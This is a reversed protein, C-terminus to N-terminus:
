AMDRAMALLNGALPRVLDRAMALLNGALHNSITFALRDFESGNGGFSIGDGPGWHSDSALQSFAPFSFRNGKEPTTKPVLKLVHCESRIKSDIYEDFVINEDVLGMEKATSGTWYAGSTAEDYDLVADGRWKRVHERFVEHIAGIHRQMHEKEDDSMENFMDMPNKYKGGKAVYTNIGIKKEYLWIQSELDDVVWGILGCVQSPLPCLRLYPHFNWQFMTKPLPVELPVEM